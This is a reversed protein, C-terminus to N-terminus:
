ETKYSLNFRSLGLCSSRNAMQRLTCKPLLSYFKINLALYEGKEVLSQRLGIAYAYEREIVVNRSSGGSRWISFLDITLLGEIVAAAVDEVVEWM